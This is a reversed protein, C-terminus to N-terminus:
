LVFRLNRFIGPRYKQFSTPLGCVEDEASASIERTQAALLGILGGAGAPTSVGAAPAARPSTEPTIDIAPAVEGEAAQRVEERFQGRM